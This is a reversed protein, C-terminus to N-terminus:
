RDARGRHGDFVPRSVLLPARNTPSSRAVSVGSGSGKTARPSSACAQFTPGVQKIWGGVRKRRRLKNPVRLEAEDASSPEAAKLRSPGDM